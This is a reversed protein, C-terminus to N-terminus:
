TGELAASIKKQSLRAHARRAFAKVYKNDFSLAMTCDKEAEAWRHIKPSMDVRDQVCSFLFSLPLTLCCLGYAQLKLYAMARNAYLVASQRNM